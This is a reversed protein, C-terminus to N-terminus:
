EIFNWRQVDAFSETTYLCISIDTCNSIVPLNYCYEWYFILYKLCLKFVKSFCSNITFCFVGFFLLLVFCVFVFFVLLFLVFVVVFFRVFCGWLLLLFCCFVCNFCFLLLVNAWLSRRYFAHM